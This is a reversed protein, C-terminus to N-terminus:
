DKRTFTYYTENRFAGGVPNLVPAHEHFKKAFKQALQFTQEHIDKDDYLPSILKDGKTNDAVLRCPLTNTQRLFRIRIAQMTIFTTM